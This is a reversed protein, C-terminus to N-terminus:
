MKALGSSVNQVYGLSYGMEDAIVQLSKLEIDRKYLIKAQMSPLRALVEDAESLRKELDDILFQLYQEMCFIECYRQINAVFTFQSINDRVINLANKTNRLTSITEQMGSYIEILKRDVEFRFM